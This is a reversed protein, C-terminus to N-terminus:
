EINDNQNHKYFFLASEEDTIQIVFDPNQQPMIRVPRIDNTKIYDILDKKTSLVTKGKFKKIKGKYMVVDHMVYYNVHDNLKKEFCIVPDGFSIFDNVNLLEESKLFVAEPDTSIEHHKLNLFLYM